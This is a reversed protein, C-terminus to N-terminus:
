PRPIGGKENAPKAAARVVEFEARFQEEDYTGDDIAKLVDASCWYPLEKWLEDDGVRSQGMFDPRSDVDMRWKFDDLERHNRFYADAYKNGREISTCYSPM